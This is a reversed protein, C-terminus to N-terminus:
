VLRKLKLDELLQVNFGPNASCLAWGVITANAIIKESRNLFQQNVSERVANRPPQQLSNCVNSYVACIM